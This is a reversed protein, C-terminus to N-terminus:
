VRLAESSGVASHFILEYKNTFDAPAVARRPSFPEPFLPDVAIRLSNELMAPIIRGLLPCSIELCPNTNVEILWPQGRRWGARRM